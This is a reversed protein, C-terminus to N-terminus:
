RWGKMWGGGRPLRGGKTFGGRQQKAPPRPPEPDDEPDPKEEEKKIAEAKQEIGEALKEFNPNLIAMAAVAYVMTDLAENRPRTQVWEQTPVGRSFKTVLKESALQKFYEENFEESAPFHIYGPGFEEIKLRSYITAKAADTGINFLLVRGLNSTTPRSVLPRGAQSSGKVAWVRRAIRKKCFSYVEKAHHGTDIAAATIRLAIGFEHQYTRDKLFADLDRWPSGEREFPIGPDGPFIKYELAWSEEGKGWGIVQAEIRDNQVDVGATIVLAGAPAEAPYDERRNYLVDDSLKEGAEEWSEGLSTNVFVRLTERSRNAELFDKAMKAFSSWPSYLENIWFGAIGAFPKTARWEGPEIMWLKDADTLHAGCSLCLYYAREPEHNGKDDKPWKVQSWHLIDYVGCHSCPVYYKRQDSGEYATEIRSIGKVTPTSVMIKKKNWFTVCRKFALNVPDGETGASPPYRDVEDCLVVRVPRSALSAASNAGSVTIHGGPFTKHLITNNADRSKSDRVKDRLCPTDRIMPAFRDKSWAQGMELTPQVLLMPSPDQDIFYGIINNIVETKGVQSSSMVVTTEVEPDSVANMIGRQYEARSTRWAGPEASAEPSLM